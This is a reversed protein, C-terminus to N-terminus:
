NTWKLAELRLLLVDFLKAEYNFFDVFPREVLGYVRRLPANSSQSINM